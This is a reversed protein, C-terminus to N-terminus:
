SKDFVYKRPYSLYEQIGDPMKKLRMDNEVGLIDREQESLNESICIKGENDLGLLDPYITTGESFASTQRGIVIVPEEAIAWPSRALWGELNIQFDM